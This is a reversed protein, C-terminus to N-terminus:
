PLLLQLEYLHYVLCVVKLFASTSKVYVSKSDVQMRGRERGTEKRNQWPHYASLDQHFSTQSARKDEHSAAGDNM